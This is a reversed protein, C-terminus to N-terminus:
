HDSERSIASRKAQFEATATVQVCKGPQACQANASTDTWAFFINYTQLLNPNMPNPGGSMDDTASWSIGTKGPPQTWQYTVGDVPPSVEATLDLIQGISVTQSPNTVDTMTGSSYSYSKIHVTYTPAPDIELSASSRDAPAGPASAFLNGLSDLTTSLTVTYTAGPTANSADVIIDV